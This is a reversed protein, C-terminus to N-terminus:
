GRKLIELCMRSNHYPCKWFGAKDDTRNVTGDDRISWHWEGNKRDVLKDQIFSLCKRATDLWAENGSLEWANIYGVVTEAQVWWHRDRDTHGNAKDWEYIMTSDPQLGEAAARAVKLAVPTVMDIVDDDNLVLAAEYLLWSSEIDHGYSYMTSKCKWTEDFFLNLHGTTEDIIKEVFLIILNRLQKHLGYDPWIRYLNTYAELIHLHTNMTKKENADKDSLRLDELLHWERDYAEFYGNLEKDFSYKEILNYLEIAKDRSVIDGTVIFYQSLAYILFAQSYIQKKTDLPTGDAALSWYSGGNKEDFFNALIYDRAGTATNLYEPDKIMEYAASFSWLIRANLIAGKPADAIINDEGDIRGYFGGRHDDVMKTMWFPLISGTLEALADKKMEDIIKGADQTM